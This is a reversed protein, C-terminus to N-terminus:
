TSVGSSLLRWALICSVIEGGIVGGSSRSDNKDVWIRRQMLKYELSM